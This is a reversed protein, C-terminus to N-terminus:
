KAIVLNGIPANDIQVRSAHEVQAVDFAFRDEVAHGISQDRRIHSRQEAPSIRAKLRCALGEIINGVESRSAVGDSTDKTRAALRHNVRPAVYLELRGDDGLLKKVRRAIKALVVFLSRLGAKRM